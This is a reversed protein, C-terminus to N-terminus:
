ELFFQFPTNTAKTKYSHLQNGEEEKENGGERALRWDKM